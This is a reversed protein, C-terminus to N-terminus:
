STPRRADLGFPQRLELLFDAGAHRLPMEEINELMSLMPGAVSAVESWWGAGIRFERLGDLAVNEGHEAIAAIETRILGGSVGGLDCRRLRQTLVLACCM